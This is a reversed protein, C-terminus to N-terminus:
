KGDEGTGESAPRALAAQADTLAQEMVPCHWDAKDIGMFAINQVRVALSLGKLAGWLKVNREKAAENEVDKEGLRRLLEAIVVVTHWPTEWHPPVSSSGFLGYVSLGSVADANTVIVYEKAIDAVIRAHEDITAVKFRWLVDEEKFPKDSM